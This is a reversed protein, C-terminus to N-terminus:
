SLTDRKLEGCVIDFACVILENTDHFSVSVGRLKLESPQVIDCREM